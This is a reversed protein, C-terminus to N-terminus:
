FQVLTQQLYNKLRVFAGSLKLFFPGDGAEKGKTEDKRNYLLIIGIDPNSGCFEPTLLSRVVLQAM